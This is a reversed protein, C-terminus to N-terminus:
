KDMEKGYLTCGMDHGRFAGMCTCGPREWEPKMRLTQARTLPTDVRKPKTEEIGDLLDSFAIWLEIRERNSALTLSAGDPKLHTAVRQLMEIQRDTIEYSAM